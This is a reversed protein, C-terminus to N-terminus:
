ADPRRSGRGNSSGIWRKNKFDAYVVKTARADALLQQTLVWEHSGYAYTTQLEALHREKMEARVLEREVAEHWNECKTCWRFQESGRWWDCEFGCDLCRWKRDAPPDSGNELLEVTGGEEREEGEVPGGWVVHVELWHWLGDSIGAPRDRLFRSHPVSSRNLAEGLEGITWGDFGNLGWNGVYGPSKSDKLRKSIM